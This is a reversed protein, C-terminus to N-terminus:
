ILLWLIILLVCKRCFGKEAINQSQCLNAFNYEILILLDRKKIFIWADRENFM